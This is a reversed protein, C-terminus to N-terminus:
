PTPAYPSVGTSKKAPIFKKASFVLYGAAALGAVILILTLNDLVGKPLNGAGKFFNRVSDSIDGIFSPTDIVDSDKIHNFFSQCIKENIKSPANAIMYVWRNAGRAIPDSALKVMAEMLDSNWGGQGTFSKLVKEGTDKFMKAALKMQWSDKTVDPILDFGMYSSM